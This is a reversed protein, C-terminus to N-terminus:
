AELMLLLDGPAVQQGPTVNIAVVTAPMPASLAIQDDTAHVRANGDRDAGEVVYSRGEIFVWVRQRENIAYALRGNVRYRGNGLADAVTAECPTGHIRRRAAEKSEPAEAPCTRASLACSNPLKRRRRPFRVEAAPACNPAKWTSSGLISTAASSGRTNWSKSSFRSTRASASFRITGFHKSRVDGRSTAPRAM